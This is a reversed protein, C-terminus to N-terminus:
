VSVEEFALQRCICTGLQRRADSIQLVTGSAAPAQNSLVRGGPRQLRPLPDTGPMRDQILHKRPGDLFVQRSAVVPTPVPCVYVRIIIPRGM